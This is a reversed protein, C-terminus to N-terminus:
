RCDEPEYSGQTTLYARVRPYESMKMDFIAYYGSMGDYRAEGELAIDVMENDFEAIREALEIALAPVGASTAAESDFVGKMYGEAGEANATSVYEVFPSLREDFDIIEPADMYIDLWDACSFGIELGLAKRFYATEAEAGAIALVLIAFLAAAPILKPPRNRSSM